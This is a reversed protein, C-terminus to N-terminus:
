CGEVLQVQPTQLIKLPQDGVNSLRFTTRIPVNYKVYGEDVIPQDVMLRPAGTVQPTVQPEDGSWPQVVVVLLLIALALGSVAFGLWPFRRAKAQSRRQKRKRRSKKSMM